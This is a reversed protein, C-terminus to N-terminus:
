VPYPSRGTRDFYEKASQRTSDFIVKGDLSIQIPRNNGASTKILPQITVRRIITGM